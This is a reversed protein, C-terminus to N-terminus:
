QRKADASGADSFTRVHKQSIILQIPAAALDGFGFGHLQGDTGRVVQRSRAELKGYAVAWDEIVERWASPLPEVKGNQMVGCGGM